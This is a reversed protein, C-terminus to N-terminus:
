CEEDRKNLIGKIQVSSCFASNCNNRNYGSPVVYYSNFFEAEHKFGAVRLKRDVCLVRNELDGIELLSFSHISNSDYIVDMSKDQSMSLNSHQNSNVLSPNSKNSTRASKSPLHSKESSQLDDVNSKNSGGSSKLSKKEKSQLTIKSQLYDFIIM